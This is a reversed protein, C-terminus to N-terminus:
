GRGDNYQDPPEDPSIVTFDFSGQDYEEDRPAHQQEEREYFKEEQNLIKRRCLHRGAYGGHLAGPQRRHLDVVICSLRTAVAIFNRHQVHLVYQLRRLIWGGLVIAGVAFDVSSPRGVRGSARRGFVRNCERGINWVSFSAFAM